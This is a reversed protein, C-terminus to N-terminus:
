TEADAHLLRAYRAVMSFQDGVTACAGLGYRLADPLAHDGEAHEAAHLGFHMDGSLRVAREVLRDLAARPLRAEADDLDDTALGVHALLKGSPVGQDAATDVVLRAEQMAVTAAEPM